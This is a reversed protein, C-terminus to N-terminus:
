QGNQGDVMLDINENVINRLFMLRDETLKKGKVHLGENTAIIGHKEIYSLREELQSLRTELAEPSELKGRRCSFVKSIAQSAVSLSDSLGSVTKDYAAGAIKMVPTFVTPGVADAVPEVAYAAVVGGKKIYSFLVLGTYEVFAYSYQVSECLVGAGADLYKKGIDLM